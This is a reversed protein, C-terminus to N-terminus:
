VTLEVGVNLGHVAVPSTRTPTLESTVVPSLREPLLHTKLLLWRKQYRYTTNQLHLLFTSYSAIPNNVLPRAQEYGTLLIEQRWM